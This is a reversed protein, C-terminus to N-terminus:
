VKRSPVNKRDVLQFNPNDLNVEMGQDLYQTLEDVLEILAQELAPELILNTCHTCKGVPLFEVTLKLKYNKGVLTEQYERLKVLFLKGSVCNPCDRTIHQPYKMLLHKLRFTLELEVTPSEQVM